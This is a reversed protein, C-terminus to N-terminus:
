RLANRILSTCRMLKGPFSLESIRRRFTAADYFYQRTLLIFATGRGVERNSAQGSARAADICQKEAYHLGSAVGSVANNKGGPARLKPVGSAIYKRTVVRFSTIYPHNSCPM